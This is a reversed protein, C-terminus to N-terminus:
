HFSPGCGDYVSQFLEQFNSDGVRFEEPTMEAGGKVRPYRRTPPVQRPRDADPRAAVDPQLNIRMTKSLESRESM